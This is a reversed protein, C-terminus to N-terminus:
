NSHCKVKLNSSSIYKTNWKGVIETLQKENDFKDILQGIVRAYQCVPSVIEWSPWITAQEHLSLSGFFLYQHKSKTLLNCLSASKGVGQWKRFWFSITKKRHFSSCDIDSKKVLIKFRILNSSVNWFYFSLLMDKQWSEPNPRPPQLLQWTPSSVSICVFAYRTFLVKM